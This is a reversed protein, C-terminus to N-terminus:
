NYRIVRHQELWQFRRDIELVPASAVIKDLVEALDYAWGSAGPGYVLWLLDLCTHPDTSTVDSNNMFTVSHGDGDSPCLYHRVVHFADKFAPGTNVCLAALQKSISARKFTAEKPWIVEFLPGIYARWTNEAGGDIQNVWQGLCKATGALVAHPARKLLNRVEESSVPPKTSSPTIAWNLLPALFQAAIHMAWQGDEVVKTERIAKFIQVKYARTGTFSLRAGTILVARLEVGQEDDSSLHKRFTGLALKPDVHLLFDAFHACVGRGFWGAMTSSNVVARLRKRDDYSVGVTARKKDIYTLLWEVLRGSTSNIVREYFRGLDDRRTSQENIETLAWLRDWWTGVSTSDQAIKEYAPLIISLPLLLGVLFGSDANALRIFTLGILNASHEGIENSILSANALSNIFDFWLAVNELTLDATKLVEFAPVPESRCYAAWAHRTDFESGSILARAVDLRKEPMAEHLPKPDPQVWHVGSSYSGFLDHEEYNGKIFPHRESIAVLEDQGLQTLVGALRIATLLLWVRHDRAQPRWDFGQIVYDEYLSPSEILIREVIREIYHPAADKLRSELTLVLERRISWFANPSLALINTAAEDSSFLAPNRLGCLWLRQGVLGPIECWSKVLMRTYERDEEALKPLLDTLLVCLHVAGDHYLNQNHAEVSPVNSNIEDWDATILGIESVSVGVDFLAETCLQAFRRNRGSVSRIATNIEHMESQDNLSLSVSVIERLTLVNSDKREEARWKTDLKIKPTLSNVANKLDSDSIQQSKLNKALHFHQLAVDGAKHSSRCLLRWALAWPNPTNPLLLELRENLSDSFSRGFSAHWGIASDLRILNTLDLACWNVLVRAPDVHQWLKASEFYDFWAPDSVTTIVAPWLDGKGSLLWEVEDRQMDTISAFPKQLLAVLRAHRGSKPREVLDALRGLDDWLAQHQGGMNRYPLPTVAVTAWRAETEQPDKVYSDLAYVTRLDGFRVRDGELLNLFYRVPADNASYGILVLTKCRVLDFLFRAAWGSRMYADGYEASTLVLPTKELGTVNDRIRGHLHIIGHCSDGGPPPLAQGALSQEQGRSGGDVNDVAREFLTDFNTTVLMIRNDRTRSLRLLTEHHSLDPFNLTLIATVEQYMREPNALRRSLTGLTEEYRGLESAKREAPTPEIGLREYVDDVLKDFMPLQPASVGAGCLFVVEGNLMADVLVNPFVPGDNSFRLSM